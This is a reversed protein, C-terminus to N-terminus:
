MMRVRPQSRGVVGMRMFAWAAWFWFSLPSPATTLPNTFFSPGFCRHCRSTVDKKEEM